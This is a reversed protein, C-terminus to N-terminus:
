SQVMKKISEVTEPDALTTVDGEDINNSIAGLVRRMNKGSRTKPMDPVIWCKRPKDLFARKEIGEEFIQAMTNLSRHSLNKIETLLRPILNKLSESSQLHFMNSFILPDFAYVDHMADKLASIRGAPPMPQDRVVHELRMQLYQLVRLSLSAYLEDKNKFYLYLTGPSLEAKAAIDEMTAKNFGKVSFVHKAAVMTQQHRHERKKRKQLGM